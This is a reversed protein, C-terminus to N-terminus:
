GGGSGDLTGVTSWSLPCRCRGNRGGVRELKGDKIQGRYIQLVVVPSEVNSTTPSGDIGFSYAWEEGGALACNREARGGTSQGDHSRHLRVML